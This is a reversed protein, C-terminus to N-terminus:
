ANDSTSTRSWSSCGSLKVEGEGGGDGGGDGIEQEEEGSSDLELLALEGFTM